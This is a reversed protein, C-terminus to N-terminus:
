KATDRKTMSHLYSKAAIRPLIVVTMASPM